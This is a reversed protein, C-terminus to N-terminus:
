IFLLCPATFLQPIDFSFMGAKGETFPYAFFLKM